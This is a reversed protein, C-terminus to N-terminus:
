RWDRPDNAFNEAILQRLEKFDNEALASITEWAHAFAARKLNTCIGDRWFIWTQKSVRGIQRLYIQENTLDFYRYFEDRKRQFVEVALEQGYFAEPPLKGALERYEHALTDEFSTVAQRHTLYLQWAAVIVAVATGLNSVTQIIENM